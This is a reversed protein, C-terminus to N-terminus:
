RCALTSTHYGLAYLLRTSVAEAGTAMEPNAFSDFRLSYLTGGADRATLRPRIGDSEGSVITRVGEAPGSHLFPGRVMLVRYLGVFAGTRDAGRQCHVFIPGSAPDDIVEFFREVARRPLEGGPGFPM